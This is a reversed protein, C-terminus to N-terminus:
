NPNWPECVGRYSSAALNRFARDPDLHVGKDFHWANQASYRACVERGGKHKWDECALLTTVVVSGQRDEVFHVGTEGVYRRLGRKGTARSHVVRATDPDSRINEIVMLMDARDRLAFRAEATAWDDVSYFDCVIDRAEILQELQVAACAYGAILLAGAAAAIETGIARGIDANM